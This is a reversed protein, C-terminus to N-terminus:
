IWSEKLEGSAAIVKRIAEAVNQIDASSGLLVPHHLVIMGHHAKEAEALSGTSRFRSPSRGAHLSRFGADCAVGEARMARVFRDRSLGGAAAANWQFGVKYYAPSLDGSRNSLPRVGTLGQIECVLQQVREARVQNRADLKGLQPVLVAAQLESLAFLENGRHCYVKARQHVEAHNTLICGGRGATLLKSGGFSLVGVDGWCGARRGDILAGTAQAADEVVSISRGRALEAIRRVPAIGGHLHSVIVARTRRGIAREVEAEAINWNQPDLDCLVPTAGVALVSRFNGGYDYGALIVEDDPGIRLARLALEVAFTGSSCSRVFGVGFYSALEGELREVHGGHYKGWTGTRYATELAIRVDDDPIPWDPPGNPCAPVGGLIAPRSVPGFTM